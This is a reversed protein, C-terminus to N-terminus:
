RGVENIRKRYLSDDIVSLMNREDLVNPFFDSLHHIETERESSFLRNFSVTCVSFNNQKNLWDSIKDLHSSFFMSLKNDDAAPNQQSRSLMQRQSELIEPMNRQMFVVRYSYQPPLCVLLTSVVKVVKGDAEHLWTNDKKLRKVKEYEFYGRPNDEDATRRQDVLLELGGAQLMSMMLSTGSRPLGSVIIIESM